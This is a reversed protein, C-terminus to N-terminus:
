EDCLLRYGVGPETVLLRPNSPDDEIKRRLQLVYVRLYSQDPQSQRGFLEQIIQNHTVVRGAYKALFRLLSYETPTLKLEAGNKLALRKGFDVALNGTKFIGDSADPISHRLATRLRALLEGMGFPKTVYDDAGADLLDIKDQESNKVSLVIVPTQSWERLRKLADMGDMDPLGLDLIIVDPRALSAQQLGEQATTAERVQYGHAELSLRLMRRIQSEDDIVLIIPGDSM